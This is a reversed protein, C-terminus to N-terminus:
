LLARLDEETLDEVLTCGIRWWHDGRSQTPAAYIVRARVTRLFKGDPNKLDVLLTTGPKFRHKLLLAVGRASIDQVTGPWGADQLTGSMHCSAELDAAYRVWARRESQVSHAAVGHSAPDESM